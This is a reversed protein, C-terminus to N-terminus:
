VLYGVDYTSTPYAFLVDRVDNATLGHRVALAFLDITEEANPALIHAGMLRGSGKERIVKAAAHTDGLRFTTFWASMDNDLVELDDRGSAETVPMGVGALPPDSFVVSATARPDYSAERGLITEAVVHAHRGAAPTLAPGISAADGCAFVRRNSASRMQADVTVGRRDVQVGAVELDLDALDPVRGAGHVVLDTALPGGATEIVYADGNRRISLPVTDLLVEIGLSRYRDVLRAALDADFRKLVRSSRNVITVAAGARHALGAFEFSIFGGGVFVIRPPLEDLDMFGDAHVLLEEGRIGLPLSRAGTAIVIADATYRRGEIEVTDPGVFRAAGHLLTAGVDRLHGETREPVGAVFARKRRMLESWVIRTEGDLGQGALAEVRGLADSAALLIKKPDCGRQKCTGGYPLRDTVVVDLGAAACEAAVSGGAVGTGIVIVDHTSLPFEREMTRDKTLSAADATTV